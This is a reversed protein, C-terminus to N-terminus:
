SLKRGFKEVKTDYRNGQFMQREQSLLIVLIWVAPRANPIRGVYNVRRSRRTSRLSYNADMSRRNVSHCPHPSSVRKPHILLTADFSRQAEDVRNPLDKSRQKLPHRGENNTFVYNFVSSRQNAHKRIM